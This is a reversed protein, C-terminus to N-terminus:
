NLYGEAYICDSEVVLYFVGDCLETSMVVEVPNDTCVTQQDVVVGNIDVVCVNATGVNCLECVIEKDDPYYNADVTYFDCSREFEYDGHNPRLPKIVVVLKNGENDQTNSGFSFSSSTLLFMALLFLKRM